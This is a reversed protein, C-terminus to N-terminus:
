NIEKLEITINHVDIYNTIYSIIFSIKDNTYIYQINEEKDTKTLIEKKFKINYQKQYNKILVNLDNKLVMYINKDFIYSVYINDILKKDDLGIDVNISMPTYHKFEEIENIIDLNIYRKSFDNYQYYDNKKITDTNLKYGGLENLNNKELFSFSFLFSNLLCLIILKKIM